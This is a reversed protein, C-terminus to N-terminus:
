AVPCSRAGSSSVGARIPTIPLGACRLLSGPSRRVPLFLVPIVTACTIYFDANFDKSVLVPPVQRRPPSCKQLLRTLLDPRM